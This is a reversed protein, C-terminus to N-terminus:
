EPQLSLCDAPGVVLRVGPLLMVGEAEAEAGKAQLAELGPIEGTIDLYHVGTALCADALPGATHKFPGACNLLVAIGELAAAVRQPDSLGFARAEVNLEAALPRLKWANRGAVVAPVGFARAARAVHEGIF